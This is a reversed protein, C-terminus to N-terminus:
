PFDLNIFASCVFEGDRWFTALKVSDGGDAAHKKTRTHVMKWKNNAVVVGGFFLEGLRITFFVFVNKYCVLM